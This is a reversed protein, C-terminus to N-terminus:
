GAKTKKNNKKTEQDHFVGDFNNTNVAKYLAGGLRGEQEYYVTFDHVGLENKQRFVKLTIEALEKKVDKMRENNEAAPSKRREKADESETQDIDAVAAPHTQLSAVFSHIFHHEIASALTNIQDDKNRVELDTIAFRFMKVAFNAFDQYEVALRHNENELLCRFDRDIEIKGNAAMTVKKDDTFTRYYLEINNCPPGERLVSPADKKITGTAAVCMAWVRSTNKYYWYRYVDKKAKKSETPNIEPIGWPNKSIYADRLTELAKADINVDSKKNSFVVNDLCGDEGLKREALIPYCPYFSNLLINDEMKETYHEIESPSELEWVPRDFYKGSRNGRLAVCNLLITEYLNKGTRVIRVCEDTCLSKNPYRAPMPSTGISNEYLLIDAFEEPSFRFSRIISEGTGLSRIRGFVKNNGGPALPNLLSIFNDPDKTEGKKTTEQESFLSTLEINQLFPSDESFLDFKDYYKVLYELVAEDRTKEKLLNAFVDYRKAEFGNEPKYHAAMEITTTLLHHIYEYIWCQEGRFTPAVFRDISSANNFLKELGVKDTGGHVTKVPIWKESILNYSLM